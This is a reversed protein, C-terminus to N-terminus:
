RGALYRRLRGFLQAPHAGHVGGRCERRAGGGLLLEVLALVLLDVWVREERRHTYIYMYISIYTYTHLWTHISIAAKELHAAASSTKLSILVLFDVWV